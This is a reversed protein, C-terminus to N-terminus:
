PRSVSVSPVGELGGPRAAPKAVRVVVRRAAFRRLLEDAVASALGELLDYTHADSIEQVTRAVASYDVADDFRDSAGREGVALEIDFLFDQGQEREEAHVGHRGFIRLGRLEVTIM